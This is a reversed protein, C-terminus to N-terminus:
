RWRPHGGGPRSGQAREPGKVPTRVVARGFPKPQRVRDPFDTKDTRAGMVEAPVAVPQPQGGAALQPGAQQRVAFQVDPFQQAPAGAILRQRVHEGLRGPGLGRPVLQVLTQPGATPAWIFDM